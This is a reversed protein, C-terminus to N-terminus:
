VGLREIAGPISLPWGHLEPDTLAGPRQVRRVKGDVRRSQTPRFMDRTWAIGPWLSMSADFCAQEWTRHRHVNLTSTPRYALAHHQYVHALEHRITARVGDTPGHKIAARGLDQYLVIAQGEPDYYGGARNYPHIGAPLPIVLPLEEIEVGPYMATWEALAVAQLTEILAAQKM